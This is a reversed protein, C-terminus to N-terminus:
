SNNDALAPNTTDLLNRTISSHTRFWKNVKNVTSRLAKVDQRQKANPELENLILQGMISLTLLQKPENKIFKYVETLANFDDNEAMFMALALMVFTAEADKNEQTALNDFLNRYYPQLWRSAFQTALVNVFAFYIFGTPLKQENIKLEIVSSMNNYFQKLTSHVAEIRVDIPTLYAAQVLYGFEMMSLIQKQMDMDPYREVIRTLVHPADQRLGCYFYLVKTWWSDEFHNILYDIRSNDNRRYVALGVLFEQFSLHRFEFENKDNIVLLATQETFDTMLADIDLTIGRETAVRTIVSTFKQNSISLQSTDHMELAIEMALYERIAANHMTEVRRDLNWKGLLLDLFMSYLESLNAPIERYDDSDYLVALLTLVLPTNPLRSLLNHDLLANLLRTSSDLRDVFWRLVFEKIQSFNFPQIEWREYSPLSALDTIDDTRRTTVVMKIDPREIGFEIIQTRFRERQQLNFIEDLGDILLTIRADKGIAALEFDPLGYYRQVVIDVAKELNNAKVKALDHAKLLLPLKPADDRTNQSLLNLVSERLIVSKGSGAEGVILIRNEVPIVQDATQIIIENKRQGDVWRSQMRRLNPKVFVDILAREKVSFQPINQLDTLQECKQQLAAAIRASIGSQYFYFNPLYKDILDVLDRLQEPPIAVFPFIPYFLPIFSSRSCNRCSSLSCSMSMM